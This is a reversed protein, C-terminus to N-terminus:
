TSNPALATCHKRGGECFRKKLILVYQITRYSCLKSSTWRSDTEKIRLGHFLVWLSISHPLHRQLRVLGNVLWFFLCMISELSGWVLFWVALRKSFKFWSSTKIQVGCIWFLERKWKRFCCVVGPDVIRAPLHCADAGFDMMIIFCTFVFNFSQCESKLKFTNVSVWMYVCTSVFATKTSFFCCCFAM